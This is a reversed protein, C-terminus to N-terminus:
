TSASPSFVSRVQFMEEVEPESDDIVEVNITASRAGVAFVLQGSNADNPGKYDQGEQATNSLLIYNVTAIDDVSGIQTVGDSELGRLVTLSM